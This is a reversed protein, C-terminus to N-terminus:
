HYSGDRLGKSVEVEGVKHKRESLQGARALRQYGTFM